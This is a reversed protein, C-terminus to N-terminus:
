DVTVNTEVYSDPDTVEEVKVNSGYSFSAKLNASIEVKSKSEYSYSADNQAFSYANEFKISGSVGAETFGEETFSLWAKFEGNWTGSSVKDTTTSITFKSPDITYVFSYTGEKVQLYESKSAQEALDDLYKAYDNWDVTTVKVTTKRKLSTVESSEVNTLLGSLGTLDAYLTSDSLYAALSAKGSGSVNSDSSVAAGSVNSNYSYNASAKMSMKTDDGISMAVGADIDSVSLSTSSSSDMTVGNSAVTSTNNVALGVNGVLNAGFAKTSNMAEIAKAYHTTVIEKGVESGTPAEISSSNSGGQSCGLLTLSSALLLFPKSKNM